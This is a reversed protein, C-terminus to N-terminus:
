AALREKDFQEIPWLDTVKVEMFDAIQKAKDPRPVSGGEIAKLTNPAMELKKALASLSLGRNLRRRTIDEPIM